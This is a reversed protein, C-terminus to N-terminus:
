YEKSRVDLTMNRTEELFTDLWAREEMGIELVGDQGATIRGAIFDGLEFLCGGEPSPVGFRAQIVTGPSDQGPVVRTWEYYFGAVPWKPLGLTKQLDEKTM